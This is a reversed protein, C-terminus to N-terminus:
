GLTVLKEEITLIKASAGITAGASVDLFSEITTYREADLAHPLVGAQFFDWAYMPLDKGWWSRQINLQRAASHSYRVQNTNLMLKVDDIHDTNLVSNLIVQHFIGLYTDHNDLEVKNAGAGKATIAQETENFWHAFGLMPRIFRDFVAPEPVDFYELTAETNVTLAGTAGATWAAYSAGTAWEVELVVTTKDTNLLLMALPNDPSVIIPIELHFHGTADANVPYNFITSAVDTPATTYVTGPADQPFSTADEVANLLYTGFGSVNYWALKGNVTLKLNKVLNFPGRGDAAVAGAGGGATYDLVVDIDLSVRSALGVKPLVWSSRPKSPAPDAAAAYTVTDTGIVQTLPILHDIDNVPAAPNFPMMYGLLVPLAGAPSLALGLALVGLAVILAFLLPHDARFRGLPRTVAYVATM